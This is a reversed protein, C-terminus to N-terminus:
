LTGQLEGLRKRATPNQEAMLLTGLWDSAATRGQLRKVAPLLAEADMHAFPTRVSAQLLAVADRDATTALAPRWIAWLMDRPEGVPSGAARFARTLGERDRTRFLPGVADLAVAPGQKRSEALQWLQAAVRDDGLLVTARMARALAAGDTATRAEELAQRAVQRLDALQAAMAEPVFAAERKPMQALAKPSPVTMLPDGVTAVRWAQPIMDGEWQRSAILFPAPALIREVLVRPPVFAVVFPEHVSGVYAYAGHDLWQAGVTWPNDPQQLSFSHIMSLAVPRDLVPVENGWLVSGGPLEFFDANGSSNVLVVDSQLGASAMARWSLPAADGGDKLTCSFGAEVLRGNAQAFGFEAFMPEGRGAYGNFMFVSERQLFLSCMAMSAARLADGPVQAAFAFRKGTEGRCLADTTAFPGDDKAPLSPNWGGPPSQLKVRFPTNRCLTFTDLEDGLGGWTRGSQRFADMVAANLRSFDSEQLTAGVGGYDGEIWAILQGRGAALALAGTWAADAPSAGVIGAPVLKVAALSEALSDKGNWAKAASREIARKLEDGAPLPTGVPSRRYVAAPKFARIFRPAFANDELLVPWRSHPTWRSIEDLYTAEDPVLVVQDLVLLRSQVTLSRIGLMAFWPPQRDPQAQAQALLAATALAIGGIM